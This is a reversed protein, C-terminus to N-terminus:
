LEMARLEKVSWGARGSNRHGQWPRRFPLANLPCQRGQGKFPPHPLPACTGKVYCYWLYNRPKCSRSSVFKNFSNACVYFESHNEMIETILKSTLM